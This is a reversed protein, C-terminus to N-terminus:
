KNYLIHTYRSYANATTFCKKKGSCEETGQSIYSWQPGSSFEEIRESGRQLRNLLDSMWRLAWVQKNSVLGIEKAFLQTSIEFASFLGDVSKSDSTGGCDANKQGHKQWTILHIYPVLFSLQQQCFLANIHM